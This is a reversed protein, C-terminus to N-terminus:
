GSGVHQTKRASKWASMRAPEDTIVGDAGLEVLAEIQELDNVTWVHVQLDFAHAHAILSPTAVPEGAFEAPIQLAMVDEPMPGGEQSARLVALLEGLCAGIAPRARHSALAARLTGMIEDDGATVLTREERGFDEILDLTSRSARPDPSKIELNFRATPFAEFADWLRAVRIGCGRFPHRGDSTEFAHGADFEAVVSWDLEAARGSGSTTRDLDPDHLLIPIGDRTLHVDSELIQAGSSLAFEFSALTNEPHTGASGRHGIVVPRDVDFYSHM